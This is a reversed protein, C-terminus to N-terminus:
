RAAARAREHVAVVGKGGQVAVRTGFSSSLKAVRDLISVAADSSAPIPRGRHTRGNGFGLVVPQLEVGTLEHKNNFVAEAVISEWFKQDAPFGRTDKGSRADYFDAPTATLPLGFQDYNEQPQFQVLDNEFIFNALSYFIPKGKYIEIGRLVHPGHGVFVDAGADIAAHAFSVLFEAPKERDYPAGEHAHISVMVWDSQRRAERISALIGELDRPDPETKVSVKDGARFFAGLFRLEDSSGGPQDPNASRALVRLSALTSPEVSYTTKFRLPNLGPRGKLDPRQEGASSLVSFTSACAILAVRGKRTDLYGPARARALNEGAGAFVVGAQRLYHINSLLGETGFDFSHNNAIGFLRFGAWKLEDIVWPPAGMYTGGSVPAGAFEFNHVLIEFNTFTADASRIEEFMQLYIPEDYVSLRRGIISDGTLAFRFSDDPTQARLVVVLVAVASLRITCM